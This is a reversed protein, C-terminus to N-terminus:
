PDSLADNEMYACSFPNDDVGTSSVATGGSDLIKVLNSYVYGGRDFRYYGRVPMIIMDSSKAVNYLPAMTGLKKARRSQEVRLKEGQGLKPVLEFMAPGGHGLQISHDLM